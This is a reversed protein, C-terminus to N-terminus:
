RMELTKHVYCSVNTDVYVYYLRQIADSIDGLSLTGRIAIVVNSLIISQSMHKVKLDVWKVVYYYRMRINVHHENFSYKFSSNDIQISLLMKKDYYWSIVIPITENMIITLISSLVCYVACPKSMTYLYVMARM